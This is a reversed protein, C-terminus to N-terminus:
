LTGVPLLPMELYSVWLIFIFSNEHIFELSYWVCLINWLTGERLCLSHELSFGFLTTHEYELLPLLYIICDNTISLLVSYVLSFDCCASKFYYTYPFKRQIYQFVSSFLYIYLLIFLLICFIIYLIDSYYLIINYLSINFFMKILYFRLPNINGSSFKLLNFFIQSPLTQWPLFWVVLWYLALTSLLELKAHRGELGM